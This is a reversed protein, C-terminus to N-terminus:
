KLKRLVRDLEKQAKVRVDALVTKPDAGKYLVEELATSLMSSYQRNTPLQPGRKAAPNNMIDIFTKTWPALISGELFEKSNAVAKIAPFQSNELAVTLQGEPGSYYAIFEFAEDPHETGVPICLADSYTHTVPKEGAKRPPFPVISYDLKPFYLKYRGVLFPTTYRMAMLGNGLPEDSTTGKAGALFDQVAKVGYKDVYRRMYKFAEINAPSDATIKQNEEDFVTGGFEYAWRLIFPYHYWPLFGVKKINGASDIETIKDSYADLEEFSRPPKSPDLGADRFMKNNIYLAPTRCTSILGWTKGRYVYEDWVTPYYDEKKIGYKKIYDDLPLFAQRAMFEAVDEPWVGAIDPPTGAAIAVMTKQNVQTVSLVEVEINPHKAMFNKAMKEVPAIEPGTWKEWYTLKVKEAAGSALSLAVALTVSLVVVASKRLM